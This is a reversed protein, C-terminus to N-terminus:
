EVEKFLPFLSQFTNKMQEFRSDVVNLWESASDYKSRDLPLNSYDDRLKKVSSFESESFFKGGFKESPKHDKLTNKNISEELLVFNGLGNLKAKQEESLSDDNEFHKRCFIHEIQPRKVKTWPFVKNLFAFFDKRGDMEDCVEMVALFAYAQGYEWYFNQNIVNWFSPYKYKRRDAEESRIRESCFALIEEQTKRKMVNCLFDTRIRKLSKQYIVSCFYLTQYIPKAWQISQSYSREISEGRWRFSSYFAVPLAWSNGYRTWALLDPLTREVAESSKTIGFQQNAPYAHRYFELHYDIYRHFGELSLIELPQKLKAFLTEFFSLTGLVMDSSQLCDMVEPFTLLYTRYGWLVDKMSVPILKDKSGNYSDVKRYGENIKEVITESSEKEKDILERLYSHYRLKFMAEDSLAQGTSNLTDFIRIVQTLECNRIGVVIFFLSLFMKELQESNAKKFHESEFITNIYTANRFYIGKEIEEKQSDDKGKRNLRTVDGRGGVTSLVALESKAIRDLTEKLSPDDLFNLLSRNPEIGLRKALVANMLILTTLRQRGDVIFVGDENVSIQVTGLFTDELAGDYVSYVLRQVNYADWEYGRQYSPIKLVGYKACFPELELTESGIWKEKENDAM